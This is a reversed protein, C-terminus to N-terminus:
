NIMSLTQELCLNVTHVGRAVRVGGGSKVISGRERMRGGDITLAATGHKLTKAAKAARWILKM